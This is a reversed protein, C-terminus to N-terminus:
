GVQRRLGSRWAVAALVYLVIALLYLARFGFYMSNYELLGGVMAGLLNLGLVGPTDGTRALLASFALGSFFVPCTLLVVAGLKGGLSGGALTPASYGLALSAVLLVLGVGPNALRLRAVLLNAALAMVLVGSVAIGVVQWTNGFVLGLETTAKTEVLMFGAGLFFSMSHSRAPLREVLSSVVLLTLVLILGMMGLYSFPYVRRPMYFFPWDDTSVDANLEPNAYRATMDSFGMATLATPDFPPAQDRTELFVVNRDSGTYLCVPPQGDFATQLMRYLKHGLEDSLVAFALSLTGNPKLRARASRFSEVTYVFSDLRVSSAGSLLTHSDLLGFAIVDYTYPTRSLFSRADDVVANVRPDLYPREPHFLRGLHLIAPDIEIADVAQANRRLAAAVDNGTGSGVIAVRRLPGRHVNYPFEYYNAQLKLAPDTVRNANTPALDIIRQYYHGAAKIRLVDGLSPVQELLQYPSHIRMLGPTVPWALAILGLCTGVLSGALVRASMVQFALLGLFVLSFWVVPPTWFASVAMLLGGGALSGVLNASYGELPKAGALLRGCLQGIPLLALVTLLFVTTLLAYVAVLHPASSLTQLGMNLQEGFPTAWLSRLKSDDLGYRVVVLLLVQAVLAPLALVLAIAQTRALAYGLGLGVFCVLLSYNKYFAFVPVAEGQWRILTMEVFLSLAASAAILVARSRGTFGDLWLAQHNAVDCIASQNRTLAMSAATGVAIGLLVLICVASLESGSRVTASWYSCAAITGPLLAALLAAIRLWGIYRSMMM